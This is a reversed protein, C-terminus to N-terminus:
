FKELDCVELFFALLMTCVPSLTHPLFFHKSQICNNYCGNRPPMSLLQSIKSNDVFSLHLIQFIEWIMNQPKSILGTTSHPAPARVNVFFSSCARSIKSLFINLLIYPALYPFPSHFLPVFRSSSSILLPSFITFHIFPCLILQNPWSTLISSSLIGLFVKVWSGSPVLLLPLGLFIRFSSTSLSRRTSPILLHLSNTASPFFHFSLTRCALAWLPSYHWHFFFLLIKYNIKHYALRSPMERMDNSCYPSPKMLIKSKLFRSSVENNFYGSAMCILLKLPNWCVSM